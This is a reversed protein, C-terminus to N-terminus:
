GTSIAQAGGQCGGGYDFLLEVVACQQKQALVITCQTGILFARTPM